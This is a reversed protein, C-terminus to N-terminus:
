YVRDHSHFLFAGCVAGGHGPLEKLRRGTVFNFVSITGVSDTVVLKRGNPSADVSTIEATTVDHYTRLLGGHEADWIQYSRSYALHKSHARQELCLRSHAACRLAVCQCGSSLVAGSCHGCVKLKNGMGVVFSMTADSFAVCSAPEQCLAVNLVM